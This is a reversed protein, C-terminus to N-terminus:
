RALEDLVRRAAAITRAVDADSTRWSVVSVRMARKGNWTVGGFFAEGTDNIAGIVADTRADHDADTAGARPDLFRVLGQDLEPEWLVEAGPLAGIGTVIAHCHACCRDILASLGDRGLERLAAYLAFGRARRSFEPNWDIEDRVEHSAYLYSAHVTMATYHAERHKVIAIGSDYPVNLWKHADTAWSDALDIGDVMHRKSASARAMLGFAGDVHVWAGASKAIPILKAFSDFVGTNLDGAALVVITPGANSALASELSAETVRGNADTPIACVAREGIGLFRLARDVTTHRTDNALVRIRPAGFLGDAQVDWGAARLVGERAAALATVHAMQCGTVFAFSADRPLDLLDLLWAGAVEEAIAAAPATAYMGANQDWASTLWDAALASPLSGGIVWAFFRGGPSGLLGGETAAALDDIIRAPDAGQEELPVGLRARLEELTATANVARTDLGELWRAAHHYARELAAHSQTV